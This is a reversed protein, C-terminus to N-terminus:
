RPCAEDLAAMGDDWARALGDLLASSDVKRTAAIARALKLDLAKADRAIRDFARAADQLPSRAAAEQWALGRAALEFAAGLQRLTSAAWPRYYELGYDRLLPLDDALRDAFRRLPNTSPRFALHGGLHHLALMRLEETSRTLRRDLRVTEAHPALRGADLAVAAAGLEAVRSGRWDAIAELDSTDEELGLLHTVDDGRAEFRGADHFYGIRRRDLDVENLVLTTKEHNKRHDAGPLWFADVELSLLRGAALHEIVHEALPRWVALPQVDIGYLARLEDHRVRLGTWQDGEFDVAVAAPWLAHPDLNLAALLEIWADVQCGQGLWLAGAGHLPHPVHAGTTPGPLARAHRVGSGSLDLRVPDPQTVPPTTKRRTM